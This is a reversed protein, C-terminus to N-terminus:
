NSKNMYDQIIQIISQGYKNFKVEGIGNIEYLDELETPKSASLEELTTNTLVTYAPIKKKKALDNRWTRLIEYLEDEVRFISPKKVVKKDKDKVFQVLEVAKKGQLIDASFPTLQVVSNQSFNISLFGQNILQTIYSKWDLYPLDRGAGFTKITHLDRAYIERMGSGRLVNILLEMGISQNSRTVASLAKQALITGDFKIPPQKCNDCRGCPEQKYEGFYNLIFNTRCEYGSAYEWMRNLKATQVQKFTANAESSDIFQQLQLYDNYNSFLITSSIHGDRGARGIEQYYSEINKPMNYHVVFRINSKDIGMGFAITACIVQINDNQFNRQVQSRDEQNMGAHYFGAQIGAKQLKQAISETSKRSLCYVIGAGGQQNFIFRTIYKIRDKAPMSKLFINDREFSSLFLKSSQINLQNKIDERTAEDATATLAIIPIQPFQLKLNKLAVYDSRFDNGWISVCHAEDIAFFSIDLTKMYQYFSDTNIREPSVYLLKLTKSKIKHHVMLQEDRSLSSNLAAAEVGNQRLSEVQDEMLAILPSIVVTLGESALAPIQYCISKGGGTPMIVLADKKNLIHQIVEEQGPRFQDYGFTTKLIHHISSGNEKM